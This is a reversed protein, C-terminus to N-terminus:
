GGYANVGSYVMQTQLAYYQIPAPRAAPRRELMKAQITQNSYPTNELQPRYGDGRYFLGWTNWVNVGNYDLASYVAPRNPGNNFHGGFTPNPNGTNAGRITMKHKDQTFIGM